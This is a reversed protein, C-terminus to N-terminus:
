LGFSDLMRGGRVGEGARAEAKGAFVKLGLGSPVKLYGVKSKRDLETGGYAAVTCGTCGTCGTWCALGGRATDVAAFM